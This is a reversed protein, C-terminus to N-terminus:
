RATYQAVMVQMQERQCGAHAAHMALIGQQGYEFRWIAASQEVPQARARQRQQLAHARTFQQQHMSAHQWGPRRLVCNRPGALYLSNQRAGSAIRKQGVHVAVLGRAPVSTQGAGVPQAGDDVYEGAQAKALAVVGHIEIGLFPQICRGRAEQGPEIRRPPASRGNGHRKAM